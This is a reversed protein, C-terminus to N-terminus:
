VRELNHSIKEIVDRFPKEISETLSRSLSDHKEYTYKLDNKIINHRSHMIFCNFISIYYLSYFLNSKQFFKRDLQKLQLSYEAELAARYKLYECIEEMGEKSLNGVMILKDM